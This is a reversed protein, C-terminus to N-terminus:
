VRDIPEQQFFLHHIMSTSLAFYYHFSEFHTFTSRGFRVDMLESPDLKQLGRETINFLMDSYQINIINLYELNEFHWAVYNMNPLEILIM